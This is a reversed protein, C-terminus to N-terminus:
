HKFAQEVGNLILDLGFLFEDSFSYEPKLYYEEAMKTLYPFGQRSLANISATMEVFDCGRTAPLSCEQIVFGYVYSDILAYTHACMSYSFGCSMLLGLVKNHHRLVSPGPNSRSNLLKISWPHQLLVARVAIAQKRLEPKWSKSKTDTRWDIKSFVEDVIGDLLEEKNALHNYLSMAEINLKKALKRMSLNAIGYNDALKIAEKFIKAKTLAKKRKM